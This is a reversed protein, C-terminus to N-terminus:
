PLLNQSDKLREAEVFNRSSPTVHLKAPLCRTSELLSEGKWVVGFEILACNSGDITLSKAVNWLGLQLGM